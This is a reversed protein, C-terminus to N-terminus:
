GDVVKVISSKKKKGGLTILGNKIAFLPIQTRHQLGAKQMATSLYNRVTGTTLQLNEAIEKTSYGQSVCTMIKLETRSIESPITMDDHVTKASQYQVAAYGQNKLLGSLIHYVKDNIQPSIFRGGKHVLRIAEALAYMDRDKLLYGRVEHYLAKCIHEEDKLSTLFLVATKPSRCRLLPIIEPGDVVDLCIDLIAIDPKLREVMRLADYGDKGQDLVIFDDQSSLIAKTCNRDAEQKDIIVIKIM